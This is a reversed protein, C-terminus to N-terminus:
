PASRPVISCGVPPGGPPPVPRNSLIARVADELDHKRAFPRERGLSVYRDDVRGRYIERL